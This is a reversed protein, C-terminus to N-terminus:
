RKIMNHNRLKRFLLILHQNKCWRVVPEKISEIQFVPFYDLAFQLGPSIVLAQFLEVYIELVKLFQELSIVNSQNNKYIRVIGCPFSPFLLIQAPQFIQDQLVIAQHEAVINEALANLILWSIVTGQQLEFFNV